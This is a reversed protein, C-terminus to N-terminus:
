FSPAVLAALIEEDCRERFSDAHDDLRHEDDNPQDYAVGLLDDDELEMRLKPAVNPEM